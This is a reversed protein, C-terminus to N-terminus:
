RVGEPPYTQTDCPDPIPYATNLYKIRSITQPPAYLFLSAFSRDRIQEQASFFSTNNIDILCGLRHYRKEVPQTPFGDDARYGVRPARADIVLGIPCRLSDACLFQRAEGMCEQPVCETAYRLMVLGFLTSLGASMDPISRGPV